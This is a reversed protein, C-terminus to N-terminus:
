RPSSSPAVKIKSNTKELKQHKSSLRFTKKLGNVQLIDSM